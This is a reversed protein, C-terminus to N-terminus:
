TGGEEYPNQAAIILSEALLMFMHKKTQSEIAYGADLLTPVLMDYIEKTKGVKQEVANMNDGSRMYVHVLYDILKQQESDSYPYNYWEEIADELVMVWTSIKNFKQREVYHKQDTLHEIEFMLLTMVDNHQYAHDLIRILDSKKVDGTDTITLEDTMQQMLTHYLEVVKPPKDMEGKETFHSLPTFGLRDQLYQGLIAGSERSGDLKDLPLNMDPVVMNLIRGFEQMGLDGVYPRQTYSTYFELQDASPTCLEFSQDCVTIIAETLMQEEEDTLTFRKKQEHLQQAMWFYAEALLNASNGMVRYYCAKVEQERAKSKIRDEKLDLYEEKVEYFKDILQNRNFCRAIIRLCNMQEESFVDDELHAFASEFTRKVADLPQSEVSVSIGMSQLMLCECLHTFRQDSVQYSKVELLMADISNLLQGDVNSVFFDLSSQTETAVDMAFKRLVPYRDAMDLLHSPRIYLDLYDSEGEEPEYAMIHDNQWFLRCQGETYRSQEQGNAFRTLCNELVQIHFTVIPQTPITYIEKEEEMFCNSFCATINNGYIYHCKFTSDDFIYEQFTFIPELGTPNSDVCVNPLEPKDSLFVQLVPHQDASELNM